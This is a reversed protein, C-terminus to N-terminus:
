VHARGIESPSATVRRPPPTTRLVSEIRALDRGLRALRAACAACTRAHAREGAGGGGFHVDTLREDDLCTM